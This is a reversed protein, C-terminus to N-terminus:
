IFKIDSYLLSALSLIEDTSYAEHLLVCISVFLYFVNKLLRELERDKEEKGVRRRGVSERLSPAGPQVGPRRPPSTLVDTGGGLHQSRVCLMGGVRPGCKCNHVPSKGKSMECGTM